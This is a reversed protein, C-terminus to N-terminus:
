QRNTETKTLRSEIKSPSFLDPRKSLCAHVRIHVQEVTKRGFLKERRKM